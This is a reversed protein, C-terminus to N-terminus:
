AGRKEARRRAEAFFAEKMPRWDDKAVREAAPTFPYEGGGSGYEAVTPPIKFQTFLHDLCFECLSFKYSSCDDLAGQGNGPTSEYGGSVVADILGHRDRDTVVHGTRGRDVLLCTEGCWNCNHVPAPPTPLCRYAQAIFHVADESMHKSPVGFVDLVGYDTYNKFDPNMKKKTM